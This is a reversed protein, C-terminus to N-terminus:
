LKKTDTMPIWENFKDSYGSWKVLAYEVGDIKKKRLVKEVRYVEQNTKQLEQEYFSGTIIENLSDKIKYTVPTTKM